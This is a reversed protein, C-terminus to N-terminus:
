KTASAEKQAAVGYDRGVIVTVDPESPGASAKPDAAVSLVALPPLALRVREGALPQTSTHVLIETADYSFRDANAVSTVAFGKTRLVDAVRRGLGPTGSGNLVRVHITSPAIAAVAAASPPAGPMLPDLFYKHVLKDKATDDAILVDGCCALNKDSSFPVQDTKVDHLDLGSFARALSLEEEPRLDTTINHNAVGILERIHLLDNLRDNRLKAVVTRIVQQQRKVRCPDGCEDHRFRSYSVAQEGNMHYKKGAIFHIHLHGWSDDYNMTEDPVIDIGGVADILQKTANVRLTVYRDFGPIGLFQAVTKQAYKPGGDAYAANIKDEHGNPLIVDTDRLVSLVSISPKPHADTPFNLAVAMITDSRAGASYEQDKNDYNYDIGLVLVTIRDKFFYAQPKPIFYGSLLGVPSTRKLYSQVGVFALAGAALAAVFLVVLMKPHRLSSTHAPEADHKFV